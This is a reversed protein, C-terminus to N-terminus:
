VRASWPGCPQVNEREYTGTALEINPDVYGRGGSRAEVYVSEGARERLDLGGPDPITTAGPELVQGDTFGHSEVARVLSPGDYMWHHGRDGILAAALHARLGRPKVRGLHTDRMFRDADATDVYERVHYALSPVVLRLVGGHALVRRAERLFRALETQDLHEVIHCAYVVDASGDGVPWRQTANGYHVGVRTLQRMYRRREPSVFPAVLPRAWGLRVSWSNDLNLWGPMATAGCGINIRTRTPTM